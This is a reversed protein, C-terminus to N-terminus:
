DQKGEWRLQAERNAASTFTDHYRYSNRIPQSIVWDASAGAQVTLTDGAQLDVAEGNTFTLVAAGEHVYMTVTRDYAYSFAPDACAWIEWGSIKRRTDETAKRRKFLDSSLLRDNLRM